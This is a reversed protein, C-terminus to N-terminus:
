AQGKKILARVQARHYRFMNKGSTGSMPIVDIRNEAHAQWVAIQVDLPLAAFERPTMYQRDDPKLQRDGPMKRRPQLWPLRRAARAPGQERVPSRTM